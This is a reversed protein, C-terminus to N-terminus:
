PKRATIVFLNEDPTEGDLSIVTEHDTFAALLTRYEADTYAQLMTTYPTMAGTQADFVYIRTVARKRAFSSEELCLYPEDSFLGEQATYWTPSQSGEREVAAYTHVELLLRGGPKLAAHAKAIIREADEPAFANLEGFILMVLDYGDGYDVTLLDGLQYTGPKHEQAYAISAPSFDIGKCRHGRLTLGGTYFGPGCGLDLVRAPRGHLVANHIWDLHREIKETRRSAADHEQSLHERLMRRSFEPDNWPIKQWHNDASHRDLLRQFM